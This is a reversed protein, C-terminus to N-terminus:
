LELLESRRLDILRDIIADPKAVTLATRDPSVSTSMPEAVLPGGGSIISVSEERCAGGWAGV